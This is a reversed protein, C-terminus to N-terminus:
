LIIIKLGPKMPDQHALLLDIFGQGYKLYFSMFNDTREQLGNNPFLKQKISEIQNLKVSHKQKEAKQIRKELGELGKIIKTSEAETKGKLSPDIEVAKYKVKDMVAQISEIEEQLKIENAANQEVYANQLVITEKLLDEIELGLKAWKEITKADTLLISDRRVLVPFPIEALKFQDKRELWYALEGGGGVYALNPLIQEQYLPRLIVNPSFAAPNQNLEELIEAQTWRIATGIVVYQDGQLEIRNRQGDSLYFLNIARPYAQMKFGLQELADIRTQVSSQSFSETLEKSMIPIFAQKLEADDMNMVLLETKKFLDIVFHQMADGYTWKSEKFAADFMSKLSTAHESDGLIAYLDDLLQDMGDLNMRGCSGTQGKNDWELTKGFLKLHNIEEFDHDEGGIVFVPQFNYDPYTEKLQRSLVIASVAKYIFYLPGTLLSPQHATTITFTNSDRLEHKPAFDFGLKSYQKSLVEHLLNRDVAHTQKKTIAEKFSELDMDHEWFPRLKDLQNMYAVDKESFQAVKDPSISVVKQENVM